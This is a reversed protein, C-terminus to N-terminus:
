IDDRLHKALSEPLYLRISYNAFTGDELRFGAHIRAKFGVLAAGPFGAEAMARHFGPAAERYLHGVHRGEVFVMVAQKDQRNTPEPVLEATTWHSVGRESKPGAIQAIAADYFSEGVIEISRERGKFTKKAEVRQLQQIPPRAPQAASLDSKVWKVISDLLSM